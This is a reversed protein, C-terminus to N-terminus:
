QGIESLIQRNFDKRERDSFWGWKNFYKCMNYFHVWTMHLSHYSAQRHDHTITVEPWYMTRHQRHLRRTIDIDEPYLFFREDFYQGDTIKISDLAKMRFLMFCGMHYPANMPQNYGSLALTYRADRNKGCASPMFRRFFLDVPTPLLRCVYQLSGDPYIVHPIVQAVDKNETKEMYAILAELVGEDFFVDSNIVLHYTQDCERIAANHGAGYGTNPHAVYRIRDDAYTKCYHGIREPEEGNDIVMVWSVLDSALLSKLCRDLEEIATHYTVISATMM